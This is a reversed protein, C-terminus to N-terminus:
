RNAAGEAHIDFEHTHPDALMATHRGPSWPWVEPQGDQGLYWSQCGSAWVTGPMAERIGQNFRETAEPSPAATAYAGRRWGEIWRLAYDAQAEAIPVLSFNGIPSHPGMLMFFNPFDPLAVTRYARPGEAWAESLTRGNPGTLEIPRLYARADFGTALVLVDLEHLRGDATVIGRPEVHDIRDTVVDVNPRSVARYFGNSIVLRKCMPQYDPTLKARLQPDRVTRLNLRCAESILTRQWGPRLMGAVLVNFAQKVVEYEAATLAPVRARLARSLPDNRWNPLPLVWQATRQFLRLEAVRSALRTVIQVGTSGTGVVAVRKGALPVTHDWRASHFAAGGFEDLGPIDPQVPRHLVGTASVLFDAERVNGAADRVRWRGGTFEAGVVETGLRIHEDLGHRKAVSRFYRHIEPGASFGHSWRPNRAFTYQYFASPVDCRLGPYTNDRWTGGVDHSKELVTFDTIGARKLKVAMCIGSMGAGLM